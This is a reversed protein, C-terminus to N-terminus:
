KKRRRRYRISGETDVDPDGNSTSVTGTGDRDQAGRICRALETAAEMEVIWCEQTVARARGLKRFNVELLRRDADLLEDPDTWILKGIKAVIEDHQM